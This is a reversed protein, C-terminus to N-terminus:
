AGNLPVLRAVQKSGRARQGFSLRTRLRGSAPIERPRRDAEASAREGPEHEADEADSIAWGIREILRMAQRDESLHASRVHEDLLVAADQQPAEDSTVIIRPM